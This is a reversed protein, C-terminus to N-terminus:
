GGQEIERVVLHTLKSAAEQVRDSLSEGFAGTAHIDVTFIRLKEPIRDPQLNRYLALATAFNAGHPSSAHLTDEFDGPGFERIRGPESGESAYSDVIIVEDYGLIEEVLKFGSVSLEKVQVDARSRTREKVMRAVYIGVGDDGMITNGIGLVLKKM